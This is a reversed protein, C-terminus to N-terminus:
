SSNTLNTYFRPVTIFIILGRNMLLWIFKFHTHFPTLKLGLRMPGM